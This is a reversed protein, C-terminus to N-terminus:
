RASRVSWQFRKSFARAMEELVSATPTLNYSLSPVWPIEMKWVFLVNPIETIHNWAYRISPYQIRLDWHDSLQGVIIMSKFFFTHKAEFLLFMMVFWGVNNNFLFVLQEVRPNLSPLLLVGAGQVRRESVLNWHHVVLFTGFKEHNLWNPQNWLFFSRTFDFLQTHINVMKPNM